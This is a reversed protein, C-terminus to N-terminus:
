VLWVGGRYGSRASVEVQTLSGAGSSTRGSANNSFFVGGNRNNARLRFIYATAPVLGTVTYGRAAPGLAAWDPFADHAARVALDVEEEGARAVDDLVSGDIPSITQFSRESRVRRGGIYHEIM